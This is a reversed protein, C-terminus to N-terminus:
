SEIFDKRKKSKLYIGLSLGLLVIITVAIFGYTEPNKPLFTVEITVDANPMTFTNEAFMVVNGDADTVKAVGLVFGDKPTITFKIEEGWEATTHTAEVNGNGDTKVIVNHILSFYLVKAKMCSSPLSDGVDDPVIIVPNDGGQDAETAGEPPVSGDPLLPVGDAGVLSVGPGDGVLSNGPTPVEEIECIMESGTLAFSGADIDILHEPMFSISASDIYNTLADKGLSNGKLDLVELNENDVILLNNGLLIGTNVFRDDLIKKWVIKDAVKTGTGNVDYLVIISKNLDTNYLGFLYNDKVKTVFRPEFEYSVGDIDQKYVSEDALVSYKNYLELVKGEYNYYYGYYDNPNEIYYPGFYTKSESLDKKIAIISYEVLDGGLVYYYEDDEEVYLEFAAQLFTGSGDIEFKKIDIIEFNKNVDVVCVSYSCSFFVHYNEGNKIVRKAFGTYTFNENLVIQKYTTGDTNFVVMTPIVNARNEEDGEFSDYTYGVSVFYDGDKIMDNTVYDNHKLISAVENTWRYEYYESAAKIAVFGVGFVALFLLTYLVKKKSVKELWKKM